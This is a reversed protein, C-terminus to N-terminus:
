LMDDVLQRMRANGPDLPELGRVARFDLLHTGSMLDQLDASSRESGLADRLKDTFRYGDGFNLFFPTSKWYDVNFPADIRHALQTMRAYDVVDAAAVDGVTAAREDLMEDDGLKPRETRCMLRTLDSELQSRL